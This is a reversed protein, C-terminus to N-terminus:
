RDDGSGKLAGRAKRSLLKDMNGEAIESLSFGIEDALRACYWLVDGIESAIAEKADEPMAPLQCVEADRILKKVKGAVEGAESALGLTLYEIASSSPYIATERTQKQYANFTEDSYESWGGENLYVDVCDEGVLHVIEDRTVVVMQDQGDVKEMRAYKM